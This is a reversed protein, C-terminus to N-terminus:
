TSVNLMHDGAVQLNFMDGLRGLGNKHEKRMKLIVMPTALSAEGLRWLKSRTPLEKVSLSCAYSQYRKLCAKALETWKYLSLGVAGYIQAMLERLPSTVSWLVAGWGCCWQGIYCPLKPEPPLWLWRTAL